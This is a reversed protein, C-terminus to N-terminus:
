HFPWSCSTQRIMSHVPAAQRLAPPHEHGNHLGEVDVSLRDRDRDVVRLHGKEIGQSVIEPQTARTEAAPKALAAGASNVDISLGHARAGDGKRRELWIRLDYRQFAKARRFLQMGHLPGKDFFLSRLAAVTDFPIIM